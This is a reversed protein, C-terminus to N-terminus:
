SASEVPQCSSHYVVGTRSVVIGGSSEGGAEVLPARCYVCRTGMPMWGKARELTAEEMIDFLDRDILRKTMHLIDEDSRYSELMGTLISRFESYQSGRAGENSSLSSPEILRTFLRPFSVARTSSISVLSGFTTQVLTRLTRLAQQQSGSLPPSSCVSVNQVCNIQSNLLQYWIDELPVELADAGPQSHKMCVGVAIKGIAQLMELKKEVSSDDSGLPSAPASSLGQVMDLTLAEDFEEAKDLAETPRGTWDLAWVVADFVSHRECSEIAKSWDLGAASALQPTPAFSRLVGMVERPNVYCQLDVFMQKHRDLLRPSAPPTLIPDDHGDEQDANSRLLYRLYTYRKEKAKSDNGSLRDLAEDHLSPCHLDVLIATDGPSLQLLQPIADSMAAALETPLPPSAASSSSKNGKRGASRTVTSLVEHIGSFAEGKGIEDDSVFTGILDGFQQEARHWTRLIRWFGAREFVRQLEEGNQPTYVSLLYEAALQRDERTSRSSHTHRAAATDEEPDALGVLISHLQTPPIILLFQPYKPVNRAIFIRIFTRHNAPLHDDSALIDFLIRVVLLRGNRREDNLYSDEFAIDLSHLFSEPDFRLLLRTYPYTPETAPEDLDDLDDGDGTSSPSTLVLKGGPGPPWVCSHGFFVFSFVDKKAEAGEAEDLPEESPYSLGSLVNAIYPYVKYANIIVAEMEADADLGNKRAKGKGKYEESVRWQNVRRILRVFEVIPGVWDRLGRTYVYVLADYLGERRCVGVARNLDLCLPDVHWIVKEVLDVRRDEELVDLLRQTIRPPVFSISSDLVFTQLESLYIRGIGAEDYQTWLDEWLFDFDDLAISAKACVRVLGEFLETRDVGRGDSTWHTADHMRDESFTYKTSAIMLERIKQGLVLQRAPPSPPLANINGPATSLYYALALSIASLFSGSQVFTLIRDAWTLLTGVRLDDCGQQLTM